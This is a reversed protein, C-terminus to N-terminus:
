VEEHKIKIMEKNYNIIFGYPVDVLDEEQIKDECNLCELDLCLRVPKNPNTSHTIKIDFPKIFNSGEVALSAHKKKRIKSKFIKLAPTSEEMKLFAVLMYFFCDTIKIM